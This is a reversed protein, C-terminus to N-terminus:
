RNRERTPIEGTALFRDFEEPTFGIVTPPPIRDPNAYLTLDQGVADAGRLVTRWLHCTSEMVEVHHRTPPLTEGEDDPEGACLVVPGYIPRGSFLTAPMNLAKADIMGNDDIFFGAPDEPNGAQIFDMTAGDLAAKIATYENDVWALSGQTTVALLENRTIM